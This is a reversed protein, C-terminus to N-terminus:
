RLPEIVDGATVARTLWNVSFEPHSHHMARKWQKRESPKLKTILENAKEIKEERALMREKKHSALSTCKRSCKVSCYFHDRLRKRYFHIGCAPCPRGLRQNETNLLFHVFRSLAKLRPDTDSGPIDGLVARATKGPIPVVLTELKIEMQSLAPERAFVSRVSHKHRWWLDM